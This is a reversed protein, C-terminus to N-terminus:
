INEQTLVQRCEKNANIISQSAASSIGPAGGCSLGIIAQKGAFIALALAIIALVFSLTGAVSTKIKILLIIFALLLLAGCILM